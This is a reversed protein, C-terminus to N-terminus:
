EAAQQPVANAEIINGVNLAKAMPAAAGATEAVQQAQAMQQAQAQQQQREVRKQYVEQEGRVTTAPVGLVKILHKVMGDTDMYDMVGQDIQALPMLMEFMRMVSQIDGGRQAKALPSVYEIDITMGDMEEPPEPFANQQQLLHFCRDILPQLLEAQLRGLVPGLLRMKEETRQIVETATMTQGGTGMILQDVYFAQRIADRRQEEMNLGLPNNAGINLPEIRDRTGSRYFNLGGPVTRIPMMYGDDPVMLPPDVQKQAARITVESMKNLMKIDPLASSAPSRGYGLEFSSKLYRPCLYPMSSFGSESLVIKEDPSLYCSQYEMNKNDSRTIDRQDRPRVVHVLTVEEYPDSEAMKSIRQGVASGWRAYAARASIKFKRFVTDVRGQDDESLFCESIHRTSFRIQQEEDSEVLMIGTGFTILDHYLEHIQEQFNSRAFAQYMVDTAGELWEKAIDEADLGADRYRLSFWPTSANTLMGHLSASLLEAAHVATADFLRDTRKDGPSRKVTIDAKRPVVYDAIDQWLDEWTQRQTELTSLRKLLTVAMEDAEAM